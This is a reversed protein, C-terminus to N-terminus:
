KCFFCTDVNTYFTSIKFVPPPVKFFIAWYILTGSEWIVQTKERAGMNPPECGGTVATIPSRVGKEPKQPYRCM